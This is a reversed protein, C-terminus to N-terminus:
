TGQDETESERELFGKLKELNFASSAAASTQLVELRIIPIDKPAEVGLRVSGKEIGLVYVTIDKSIRIAEGKKRKVVYM